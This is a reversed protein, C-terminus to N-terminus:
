LNQTLFYHSHCNGRCTPFSFRGPSSRSRPGRSVRDLTDTLKARSACEKCKEVVNEPIGVGLVFYQNRDETCKEAEYVWGLLVWGMAGRAGRCRDRSVWSRFYQLRIGQASVPDEVGSVM